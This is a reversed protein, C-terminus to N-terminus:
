QNWPSREKCIIELSEHAEEPDSPFVIEFYRNGYKIRCDALVDSRWRMTVKHTIEVGNKLASFYASGSVGTIGAWVTATDVWVDDEAGMATRARSRQQIVVRKNLTGARLHNM